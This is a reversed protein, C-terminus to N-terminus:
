RVAATPSTAPLRTDTLYRHVEQIVVSGEGVASAVRKVSGHRVDGVAFVGRLSTEFMHAVRDAGTTIEPGTKIFGREDREVSPPLWATRPRAGILIFLAAASTRTITGTANDRLSLWTLMGEGGGDTVETHYRVDINGANAIEKRLYASMNDALSGERVLITVLGAYRSLHIAAQGASNGGGILFVHEGMAGQAEAASAGYFVGAGTLAELSRIGIRTYSVGTALVVARARVEGAAGVAVTFRANEQRLATARRMLLFRTGFVWAQQYARQALDAGSVGHSFGLYNRILSSSGAQGGIAEDEVVLAGLGESSASVGAALGAPGAGVVVVDFDREGDLETSVGYAKALDANSPNSLFRGDYTIVVPGDSQRLGAAALLDKGQPSDSTFFAHPVGNRSLLARVEHGRSSSRDSVVSIERVASPDLRSWEHLFESITRHFFEDPSQWPKLVYYDMHGLAMARFIAHATPDDGWAGFEILLGRKARPHMGRVQALLEEGTLGPMWQAALILALDDGDTKMLQLAALADSASCECRIRYDWAYRHSLEDRIHGLARLDNDVVMIAPRGALHDRKGSM